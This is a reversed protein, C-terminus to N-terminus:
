EKEAGEAGLKKVMHLENKKGPEIEYRVEDMLTQILRLGLGGKRRERIMDKLEEQPVRSPDFTASGSDIVALKICDADFTARVTVEQTEDHGYAHEIVNSCAEDVALEMRNRESESLGAQAAIKTVFDRIIVLNRTSSPVQLSFTQEFTEM